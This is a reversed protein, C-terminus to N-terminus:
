NYNHNRMGNMKWQNHLHFINDFIQRFRNYIYKERKLKSSKSVFAM